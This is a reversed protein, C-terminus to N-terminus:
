KHAMRLEAEPQRPAFAPVSLAHPQFGLEEVPIGYEALKDQYAQVMTNHQQTAQAIQQALDHIARNKAEIVDDVKGQVRGLTAPDLNFQHLIETLYGETKDIEQNLLSVKKELLLNKFGTKQQVDYVSVHLKDLLEAREAALIEYRQGLVEHEWQLQKLRDEVTALEAKVAQLRAHVTKYEALETRLREVDQLATKLPESMRKNEQAIESMLKEDAAEKKKMEAVEEKLSKILDLNNHTIDNYYNKIEAFAREHTKLLEDIHADKRQEIRQVESKRNAELQERLVRARREHTLQLEKARREFDARLATITRDQEQKLSKVFDEHSLEVEKLSVKLTRRDQKLHAESGRHADEDLKLSHNCDAKLGTLENQQEYLLHKIRQKYVKTEVAHREELDQQERAKNRLEAKKDELNKKEVIWFYNIKERQQQFENFLQQESLLREKLEKAREVKIARAVAAAEDGADAATAAGGKKGGKKAKGM